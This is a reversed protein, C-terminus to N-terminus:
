IHGYIAMYTWIHDMYALIGDPWVDDMHSMYPGHTVIFAWIHGCILIHGMHPCIHQMYYKAMFYIDMM